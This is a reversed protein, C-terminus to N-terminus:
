EFLSSSQVPRLKEDPRAISLASCVARPAEGFGITIQEIKGKYSAIDGIAFIGKIDTSLDEAVKIKQREFTFDWEDIPSIDSTFGYHILLHDCEIKEKEKTKTHMIEVGDFQENTVLSSITFPTLLKIESNEVREVTAEHARFKERRHVVSISKAIDKLMLAWDLASDGGGAIVVNKEHFQSMDKIHYHVNKQHFVEENELGIKRPTFAGKGVALIVTKTYHTEKNTKLCFIEGEKSLNEVKENLCFTTDFSKGQEVLHDILERAQVKPFGPVDYIYKEPYLTTLQGGVESLSEIVKTKAKRMGAYIAAYLGVPGAGIITIDYIEKM